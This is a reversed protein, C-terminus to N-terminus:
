TVHWEGQPLAPPLCCPVGAGSCGQQHGGWAPRSRLRQLAHAARWGCPQLCFCLLRLLLVLVLRLHQHVHLNCRCLSLYPAAHWSCAQLCCWVACLVAQSFCFFLWLCVCTVAIPPATRGSAKPQCIHLQRCAEVTMSVAKAQVVFGQRRQMCLPVAGTISHPAASVVQAHAQQEATREHLAATRAKQEATRQHLAAVM